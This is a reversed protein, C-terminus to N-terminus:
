LPIEVSGVYNMLEGMEERMIASLEKRVLNGVERTLAAQARVFFPDGKAPGVSKRVIMGRSPDRLFRYFDAATLRKIDSARVPYKRGPIRPDDDPNRFYVLVKGPKARVPGRGDHYFVAWFYPTEVAFSGDSLPILHLSASVTKSGCEKKALALFRTALIKSM